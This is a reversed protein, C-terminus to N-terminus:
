MFNIINKINEDEIVGKEIDIHCAKCNAKSKIKKNNFLDKPIDKHQKKWFLTKSIAIINKTGISKSIKFSAEKTSKEASNKILFNLIIERDEKELYADDGFHNELNSMLIGWSKEPLLDPPYLTHCSNCESVFLENKTNFDIHKYSSIILMNNPKVLNFVIFSILLVIMILSFIKQFNNLKISENKKTNKYGSFISKLIGHKSHLIKDSLVGFLHIVILTLFLNSFFEHINKLLEMSKFYSNNLFSLVGKGEQIGLTLIGTLIVILTTILMAVIVFSAMPNHGIYVQKTDFINKTFDKAKEISLPFDKFKSYKPGILGWVIRFILIILIVYGIIAHYNLLYDEQATLFALLITSAFLWHFVRTPISWIYSLIM